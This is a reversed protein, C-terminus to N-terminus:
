IYEESILNRAPLVIQVLIDQPKLITRGPGTFFKDLSVFREGEPGLVKAKAALALLSVAMDACPAANCINGGITAVNRIAMSGLSAAAEHLIPYKENILNSKEIRRISTLAGIWLGKIKNYDISDIGPIATIDILIDPSIEKRRLQTFV